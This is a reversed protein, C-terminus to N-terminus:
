RCGWGQQLFWLGTTPGWYPLLIEWIIAAVVGAFFGLRFRPKATQNEAGDKM